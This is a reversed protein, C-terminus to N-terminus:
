PKTVMDVAEGRGGGRKGRETHGFGGGKKIDPGRAREGGQFVGLAGGMKQTRGGQWRAFRCTWLSKSTNKDLFPITREKSKRPRLKKYFLLCCSNGGMREMKKKRKDRWRDRYYDGKEWSTGGMRYVGKGEGRKDLQM